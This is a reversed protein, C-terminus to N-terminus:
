CGLEKPRRLREEKWPSRRCLARYGAHDGHSLGRDSSWGAVMPPLELPGVDASRRRTRAYNPGLLFSQLPGVPGARVKRIWAWRTVAPSTWCCSGQWCGPKGRQAIVGLSLIHGSGSASSIAVDINTTLGADVVDGHQQRIIWVLAM